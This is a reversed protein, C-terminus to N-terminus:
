LLGNQVAFLVAQTRDRVDMKAFIGSLHNKVTTESVFLRGAMEKNSLGDMLLRLVELERDTLQIRVKSGNSAVSEGGTGSKVVPKNGSTMRAAWKRVFSGPLISEGSRILEIARLLDETTLDKLLYGVAGASLCSEILEDEEFTTLAVVKIGPNQGLILRTAEIGDMVPMRIDMLILDPQKEEALRVAQQGDSAEGVIEIEPHRGLVIILSKRILTQDDAIAVRFAPTM